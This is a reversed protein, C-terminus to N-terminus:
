ELAKKMAEIKIICEEYEKEPISKFTIASGAQISLYKNENNYLLSRIVVNFDFDGEPNLYGVMGSFLGRKTREFKEIIEMARKKPAGTMSGMPFTAALIDSISIKERLIGGITSIMQHVQPFSYIKLYEEVAVSGERCIKSLDNRVLDVIMINEAREKENVSLATKEEEDKENNDLIRKSTGKMPQSIIRDKTKKLFREPSACMLYKEKWKYFASFPSPSLDNLKRFVHVPDISTNESFFEHCFCVEYCDGRAIHDQIKKVAELYENRSFRSRLDIKQTGNHDFALASIENFIETANYNKDAGILVSDESLIFVIEPVFFVFDPFVIEDANESVLEEIENKLDYAAHGFIWDSNEKQFEGLQQLHNEKGSVISSISGVGALCEYSKNFDYEHNDLFCFNSFRRGFSLM